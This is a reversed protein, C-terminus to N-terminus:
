GCCATRGPEWCRGPPETCGMAPRLEEKLIQVYAAERPDSAKM